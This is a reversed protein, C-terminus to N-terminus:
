AGGLLKYISREWLGKKNQVSNCIFEMSLGHLSCPASNVTHSRCCFVHLLGQSQVMFNHACTGSSWSLVTSVRRSAFHNLCDRHVSNLMRSTSMMLRSRPPRPALPLLTRRTLVRCGRHTKLLYQLRSIRSTLSQLLCFTERVTLVYQEIIRIKLMKM